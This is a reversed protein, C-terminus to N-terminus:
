SCPPTPLILDDEGTEGETEDGCAVEFISTTYLSDESYGIIEALCKTQVSLPEEEFFRTSVTGHFKNNVCTRAYNRLYVPLQKQATFRTMEKFHMENLLNKTVQFTVYCAQLFTLEEDFLKLTERMVPGIKLELDIGIVRHKLYTHFDMRLYGALKEYLDPSRINKDHEILSKFSVKDSPVQFDLQDFYTKLESNWYTESDMSMNQFLITKGACAHLLGRSLLFHSQDVLEDYEEPNSFLRRHNHLYSLRTKNADLLGMRDITKAFVKLDVLDEDSLDELKEIDKNNSNIFQFCKQVHADFQNKNTEETKQRQKEEAEAQAKLEPLIKDFCHECRPHTPFIGLLVERFYGHNRTHRRITPYKYETASWLKFYVGGRCRSCVGVLSFPLYLNWTSPQISSFGYMTLTKKVGCTYIEQILTVANEDSIDALNSPRAPKVQELNDVTLAAIFEQYNFDNLTIPDFILPSMDKPDGEASVLRLHKKRKDDM